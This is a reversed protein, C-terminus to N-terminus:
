HSVVGTAFFALIIVWSIVLAILLRLGLGSIFLPRRRHTAPTTDKTQDAIGNTAMTNEGDHM